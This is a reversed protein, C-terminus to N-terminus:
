LAPARDQCCVGRPARRLDPAAVKVRFRAEGLACAASLETFGPTLGRILFSAVGGETPMTDSGVVEASGSARLSVALGNTFCPVGLADLVEVRVWVCDLGDGRLPIGADDVVVRIQTAEGPTRVEHTAAANGRVYAVAKLTGPEFEVGTFTFPPHDLNRANGGDFIATPKDPPPGGSPLFGGNSWYLPDAQPPVGYETDPGDDSARMGLSRGNLFLEVRDANSYVIVKNPSPPEWRNAIRVMPGQEVPRQSQFFWYVPKPRRFLDLAGCESAGPENPFGRHHDIGVWSCTGLTWPLAQYRNLSWQYNWAQLMLDAESATLGVRSTSVSGGFEYDGYERHLGKGGMEKPMPRLFPDAWLTYPVDYGISSPDARGYTDGCTLITSYPSESRAALVMRRFFADPPGYTENLTTEWLAVCARNRDRRVMNRVDQEVRHAFVPDDSYHQWGPVCSIVLLGYRDCADLVAPDQPYHALRLCNFGAEKLLKVDREQMRPPIANGFWPMDNHRNTGRVLLPAGNVLLNGSEGVAFTRIGIRLREEDVVECGGDVQVVLEYLHPTDPHWLRPREVVMRAQLRAMGGARVKVEGSTGSAVARGKAQLTVRLKAGRGDPSGNEVDARVVVTAQKPSVTEYSVFIGGRGAGNALFPDRIRVAPKITLTADRHLGGFYAFDVARQPKGPPVTPDDRNDLVIVLDGEPERTLEATLDAVVPLYGGYHTTILRDNWYVQAKHMAAGIRLIVQGGPAISPVQLHKRYV